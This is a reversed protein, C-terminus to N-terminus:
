WQLDTLYPKCSTAIIVTDDVYLALKVHHSPPLIDVYLNFLVRSILGGQAVGVRMGRCSSTATQFSAEFMQDRLYSSITHVIYFPFNLLKLKYLLGDIWITDFAKAM